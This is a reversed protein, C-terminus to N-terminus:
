SPVRGLVLSAYQGGFGHSNTVVGRGGFARARSSVCNIPCLPDIESHNATPPILGENLALLAVIADVPGAAAGLYGTAGKTSTVLVDSESSFVKSIANAEERDGLITGTGYASIYDIDGPALGADDLAARMSADVGEGRLQVDLPLLPCVAAGYGLLEGYPTQQRRRACEEAELVLLGAGEGLILGRRARDFPRCLVCGDAERTALLQFRHMLAYAVPVLLSDGGGALALDVEGHTIMRAALGIADAGSACGTSVAIQPGRIALTASLACGIINPVQALRWYPPITRRMESAFRAPDFTRGVSSATRFAQHLREFQLDPVPTAFVGAVRHCPAKSDLGADRWAMIGAAVALSSARGLMRRLRVDDLYDDPRFWPTPAGVAAHLRQAGPIAVAQVCSRGSLVGDWTERLTGLPTIAGIGTVVVRRSKM